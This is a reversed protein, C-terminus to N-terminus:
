RIKVKTDKFHDSYVRYGNERIFDVIPQPNEEFAKKLDDITISSDTNFTYIEYNRQPNYRARIIMQGIPPESPKPRHKTEALISVLKEKEWANQENMVANLDVIYELGETCWMALYYNSM